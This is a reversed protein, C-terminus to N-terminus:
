KSEALLRLAVKHVLKSYSQTPADIAFRIGLDMYMRQPEAIRVPKELASPEYLWSGGLAYFDTGDYALEASGGVVDFFQNKDPTSREFDIGGSWADQEVSDSILEAYVSSQITDSLTLNEKDATSFELRKASSKDALSIFAASEDPSLLRFGFFKAMSLIGVPENLHAPLTKKNFANIPAFVDKNRFQWERLISFGLGMGVEFSRPWFSDQLTLYYETDFDCINSLKIYQPLSLPAQQVFVIGGETELPLFTLKGFNDKFTIELLSQDDSVFVSEVGSSKSIEDFLTSSSLQSNMGNSKDLLETYFQKVLSSDASNKLTELEARDPMAADSSAGYRSWYEAIQQFGKDQSTHLKEPLYTTLNKYLALCAKPNSARLTQVHKDFVLRIANDLESPQNTLDLANFSETIMTLETIGAIRKSALNETFWILDQSTEIMIPDGAIAAKIIELHSGFLGEMYLPNETIANIQESLDTGTESVQASFYNTKLDTFSGYLDTLYTDAKISIEQSIKNISEVDGQDINAAMYEDFLYDSLRKSLQKKELYASHLDSSDQMSSVDLRKFAAILVAIQEKYKPLVQNSELTTDELIKTKIAEAHGKVASLLRDDEFQELGASLFFDLEALDAASELAKKGSDLAAQETSELIEEGSELVQKGSESVVQKGSELIPEGSQLVQEDSQLMQEGSELAQNLLNQEVVEIPQSQVKNKQNAELLEVLKHLSEMSRKKEPLHLWDASESLEDMNIDDLKIFEPYGFIQLLETYQNEFQEPSDSEAILNQVYRQVFKAHEPCVQHLPKIISDWLAKNKAVFESLVSQSVLYSELQRILDPGFDPMIPQQSFDVEIFSPQSYNQRKLETILDDSFQEEYYAILSAKLQDINEYVVKLKANSVPNFFEIPPNRALQMSVEETGVAAFPNLNFKLASVVTDFGSISTSREDVFAILPRIWEVYAKASSSWEANASSQEASNSSDTSDSCGYFFGFLISVILAISVALIIFKTSAPSHHASLKLSPVKDVSLVNEDDAVASKLLRSVKPPINAEAVTLATLNNYLHRKLKFSNGETLFFLGTGREEQDLILMAPPLSKFQKLGLQILSCAQPFPCSKLDLADSDNHLRSMLGVVDDRKLQRHIEDPEVLSWDVHSKFSKAKQTVEEQWQNLDEGPAELMEDLLYLLEKKLVRLSELSSELKLKPPLPYAAILPFRRRGVSDRSIANVIFFAQENVFVLFSWTESIRQEGDGGQLAPIVSHDYFVRKLYHSVSTDDSVFMHDSWAPHKGFLVLNNVM